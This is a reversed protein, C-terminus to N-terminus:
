WWATCGAGSKCARILFKRVDDYIGESNLYEVRGDLSGQLYVGATAGSSSWKGYFTGDGNPTWSKCVNVAGSSPHLTTCSLARTSPEEGHAAGSGAALLSGALVLGTTLTLAKKRLANRMDTEKKTTTANINSTRSDQGPPPSETVVNLLM